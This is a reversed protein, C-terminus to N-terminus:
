QRSPITVGLLASEPTLNPLELSPKLWEQLFEWYSRTVVCQSFLLIPTESKEKCLGCLLTDVIHMKLLKANLFLVNHVIKFKFCRTKFKLKRPIM